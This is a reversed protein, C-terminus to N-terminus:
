EEKIQLCSLLPNYGYFETTDFACTTVEDMLRYSRIVGDDYKQAEERFQVPVVRSLTGRRVDNWLYQKRGKGYEWELIFEEFRERYWENPFVIIRGGLPNSGMAFTRGLILPFQTANMLM